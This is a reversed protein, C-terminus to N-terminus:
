RPQCNSDGKSYILDTLKASLKKQAIQTHHKRKRNQINEDSTNKKTGRESEREREQERNEGRDRHPM